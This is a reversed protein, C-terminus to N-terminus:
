EIRYRERDFAVFYKNVASVYSVVGMGLQEMAVREVQFFWQNANLGRRRAEARLSQVREPGLNYAALVFALREHEDLRPSSFFERRLRAMYRSAALVNNDLVKINDVGVSRAASPTIQMLGTAGGAGQAKPDLTSEKFALAALALWDLGYETANRQLVPRLKELRRLDAKALPYHVTYLRRYIRQFAVDQDEPRSYGAAFLDISARLM